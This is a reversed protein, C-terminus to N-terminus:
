SKGQYRQVIDWGFLVLLLEVIAEFTVVSTCTLDPVEEDADDDDDRPSQRPRKRSLSEKVQSRGKSVTTNERFTADQRLNELWFVAIVGDKSGDEAQELICGIL